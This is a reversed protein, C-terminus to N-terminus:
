STAPRPGDPPVSPPLGNIIRVTRVSVTILRRLHEILNYPQDAWTHWRNPDRTIGSTKDRPPAYATSPGASRPKGTSWM